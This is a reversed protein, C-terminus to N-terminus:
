LNLSATWDQTSGYFQPRGADLVLVKNCVASVLAYDHTGIVLMKAAGVYSEIRAAAKDRFNADGAGLWEDMVLIDAEVETGFAFM